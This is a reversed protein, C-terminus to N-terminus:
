CTFRRDHHSKMPRFIYFFTKEMDYADYFKKSGDNVLLEVNVRTGYNGTSAHRSRM